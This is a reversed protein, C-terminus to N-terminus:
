SSTQLAVVNTDNVDDRPLVRPPEGAEGAGCCVNAARKGGM